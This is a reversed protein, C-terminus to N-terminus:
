DAKEANSHYHSNGLKVKREAWLWNVQFNDFALHLHFANLRHQKLFGQRSVLVHSTNTYSILGIVTAEKVPLHLDAPELLRGVSSPFLLQHDVLWPCSHLLLLQYCWYWLHEIDELQGWSICLACTQLGSVKNIPKRVTPVLLVMAVSLGKFQQIRCLVIV